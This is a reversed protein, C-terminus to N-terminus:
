KIGRLRLSLRTLWSNEPHNRQEVDLHSPDQLLAYVTHNFGEGVQSPLGFRECAFKAVAASRRQGAHCHVVLELLAADAAIRDLFDVIPTCRARCPFGMADLDRHVGRVASRELMSKNLEADMFQVRLLAGWHGPAPLPAIRGPETISIVAATARPTEALCAAESM